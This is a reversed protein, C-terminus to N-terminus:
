QVSLDVAVLEKDNRVFATQNGYAPHSWVVPRGFSENTPDVVHFRGLETYGKRTLEAIILDGTESMLFFRNTDRIRTIFATGHKIFRKEGPKTADFTKWIRSGDKADVAILAGEVCDTGYIVGDVFVPTSNGAHVASKPEGRWLETAKPKASDLQLLIAENHIASAFMKDGSVVPRAISMDYSPSMPVDWYVSGTKPNMGVIATPHFVILQKAGGATIMSPPCYGAKADLAKWRVKGTLRDFAVIGQGDGGVMCYVLDGDVLPHSTFGWIPVEAAFDRKLSRKWVVEGDDVQLCTLDGESGLLYVHEGSVTPTCRPGAPYSISYPCDYSHEWLQTGTNADFVVLRERGKLDARKGPDNFLKGDKPQYDFLFVRGGALAPGAYGPGIKQRWKISLGKSPIENVIGTELYVGDRREGMWGPWDDAHSALSHTAFLIIGVITSRLWPTRAPHLM